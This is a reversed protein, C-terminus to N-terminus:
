QVWLNKTPSLRVQIKTPYLKINQIRAQTIELSLKLTVVNLSVISYDNQSLKRSGAKKQKDKWSHLIESHISGEEEELWEYNVPASSM